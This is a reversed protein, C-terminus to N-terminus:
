IWLLNKYALNSLMLWVAFADMIQIIVRTSTKSKLVSSLMAVGQECFAYPLSSSHKLAAFRDCKAVLENMVVQIETM